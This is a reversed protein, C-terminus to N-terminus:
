WKRNPRAGVRYTTVSSRMRNSLMWIAGELADPADDHAKSGKQFSLLQDELVKMGYSAQEAENFIVEGRQFLPQMAEIRAFKDPKKRGDGTIPIQFGMEVGVKKFEDMLLDQIFNSEMYYRVPTDGLYDHIEYHWAVMESVKTQDGYAKIVHYAGEATVGVLMTAKFDNKTSSKFSPDTYVVLRKYKRLPLMKGYHIYKREFVAGEIIPNNMYEKQFRREGMEARLDNIEALTYNEKWSPQGRKNLANVVTHYFHPRTAIESLTSYQGIRNGVLVFRGRGMAMTGILATLCWDVVFDVRRPNRCLEDDDIDDISIYTVRLGRNKIGRPSQGRGLAIFMSGDACIFEGDTWLGSGHQKGFDNIYLENGELEAQLDSLLRKAADQSKSVLVMVIPEHREQCKIWLPIMLSIHSSKAHGRAWEFVCRARDNKLIYEAADIQFQGCDSTALHPFYTKVFFAYDSRARRIRAEKEIDTGKPISSTLNRIEQLHVTYRELAKQFKKSEGAM